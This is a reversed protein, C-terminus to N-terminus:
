DASRALSLFILEARYLLADANPFIFALKGIESVQGGQLAPRKDDTSKDPCLYIEQRFNKAIGPETNKGEGEAFCFYVQARCWILFDREFPINRYKTGGDPISGSDGAECALMRDM